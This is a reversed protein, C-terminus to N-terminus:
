PPPLSMLRQLIFSPYDWSGMWSQYVSLVKGASPISSFYVGCRRRWLRYQGPRCVACPLRGHSAPPATSLRARNEPVQPITQDQTPRPRRVRPGYGREVRPHMVGGAAGELPALRVRPYRGHRAVEHGALMGRAPRLVEGHDLVGSRAGHDGRGAKDFLAEGVPPYLYAGTQGLQDTGVGVVTAPRQHPLLHRHQVGPAQLATVDHLRDGADRVEVATETVLHCDPHTGSAAEKGAVQGGPGGFSWRTRRVFPITGVAETRRRHGVDREERREIEAGGSAVQEGGGRHEWRANRPPRGRGRSRRTRM